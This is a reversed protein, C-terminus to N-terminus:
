ESDVWLGMYKHIQVAHQAKRSRTRSHVRAFLPCCPARSSALRHSRRASSDSPRRRPLRFKM